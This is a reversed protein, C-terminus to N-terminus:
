FKEFLVSGKSSQATYLGNSLEHVDIFVKNGNIQYSTKMEQGLMNVIRIEEEHLPEAYTITLTEHAPNPFAVNKSEITPIGSVLTYFDIGAGCVYLTDGLYIADLIECCGPFDLSTFVLTSTDFSAISHFPLENITAFSGFVYGINEHFMFGCLGGSVDTIGMYHWHSGDYRYIEDDGTSQSLIGVYLYKGDTAMTEIAYNIPIEETLTEPQQTTQNWVLLNHSSSPITEYGIYVREGVICLTHAYGPVILGNLSDVQVGNYRFIAHFPTSFDGAVLLDGNALTDLDYVANQHLSQGGITIGSPNWVNGGLTSLLYGPIDSAAYLTSHSKQLDFVAQTDSGSIIDSQMFTNGQVHGIHGSFYGTVYLSGDINKESWILYPAGTVEYWASQGNVHNAILLLTVFTRVFNKKM